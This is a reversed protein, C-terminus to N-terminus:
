AALDRLREHEVLRPAIRREFYDGDDGHWRGAARLPVGALAAADLAHHLGKCASFRGLFVADGRQGRGLPYRQPDLGHHVVEARPLPLELARQRHSIFAYHVGPQRRYRESHAPDRDHHVTAVLPISLEPALSVAAPCHAHVLDFGRGRVHDLARRCHQAEALASPPWVPAPLPSVVTCGKAYGGRSGPAAFLVVEAGSASLGDVLEAVVLETGGYGAPPVTLSPPAIMAVRLPRQHM